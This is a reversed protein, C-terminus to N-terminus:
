NEKGHNELKRKLTLRKLTLEKLEPTLLFDLFISIIRLIVNSSDKVPISLVILKSCFVTHLHQLSHEVHLPEVM